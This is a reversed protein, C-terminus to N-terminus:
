TRAPAPRDTGHVAAGTGAGSSSTSLSSSAASSPTSAAASRAGAPTASSTPWPSGSPTSAPRAPRRRGGTRRTSAAGRRRGPAAARRPRDVDVAPAAVQVQLPRPARREGAAAVALGRDARHQALVQDALRHVREADRRRPRERDDGRALLHTRSVTSGPATSQRTAALWRRTPVNWYAAAGPSRRRAARARRSRWRGGSGRRRRAGVVRVQRQVPATTSAWAESTARHISTPNTWPTIFVSLM